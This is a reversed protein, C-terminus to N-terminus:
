FVWGGAYPFIQGSIFNSEQSALYVILSAAERGTSLRGAPVQKLREKFEPTELM